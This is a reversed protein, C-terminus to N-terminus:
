ATAGGPGAVSRRALAFTVAVMAALVLGGVAFYLRRPASKLEPPTAMDVVQIMAAERAEDLRALEFQRALLDFLTEQYKFDRYVGLYGPGGEGNAAQELRQLESALAALQAKQSRVEPTEASLQSSLTRLRVEAATAEARLRAYNEAAVRPESKIASANFGSAQLRLQSASLADRARKLEAEFFARRQQAETLALESSLRRLEAVHQNAIDAARKPITDQVELTILGDKRGLAVKVRTELKRRAELQTEVGYVERLGFREILRDAVNASMLLSVYQDAATKIGGLNGALGSLAGLSALAAATGSQGQQPPVFVTRATYQIPMLFSSAWGIPAGLVSVLIVVRWQRLHAALLVFISHQEAGSVNSPLSV